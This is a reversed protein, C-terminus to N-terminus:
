GRNFGSSEPFLEIQIQCTPIFPSIDKHFVNIFLFLYVILYYDLTFLLVRGFVINIDFLSSDLVLINILVLFIKLDYFKYDVFPYLLTSIAFVLFLELM